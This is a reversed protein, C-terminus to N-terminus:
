TEKPAQKPQATVEARRYDQMLKGENTITDAFEKVEPPADPWLNTARHVLEEFVKASTASVQIEYAGSQFRHVHIM